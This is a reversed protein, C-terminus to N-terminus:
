DPPDPRDPHDSADAPDDLREHRDHRGLFAEVESLESEDFVRIGHRELLAATVGAGDRLAGTFSGDYIGVSGCSPSRAKLIALRVDHELALDLAMRAGRLFADTVDVGEDTRLRARGDLVDGGDGGGDRGVIEAPARPVSLGGGVEPCVPVLRGEAQWRALLQEGGSAGLAVARGDYRVPRGLLCASILIRVM